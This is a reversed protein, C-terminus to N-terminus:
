KGRMARRGKGNAPRAEALRRAALRSQPPFLVPLVGGVRAELPAMIPLVWATVAAESAQRPRSLRRRREARSMSEQAYAEQFHGELDESVGEESLQLRRLDFVVLGFLNGLYTKNEFRRIAPGGSM